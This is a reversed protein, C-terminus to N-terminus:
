VQRMSHLVHVLFNRVPNFLPKSDDKDVEVHVVVIYALM